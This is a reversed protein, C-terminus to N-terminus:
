KKASSPGFTFTLSVFGAAGVGLSWSQLRLTGAIIPVIKVIRKSFANRVKDLVAKGRPTVVKEPLTAMRTMTLNLDSVATCFKDYLADLTEQDLGPNGKVPAALCEDKIKDLAVVSDELSDIIYCLAAEEDVYGIGKIEARIKDLEDRIAEESM